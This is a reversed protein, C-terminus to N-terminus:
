ADVARQGGGRLRALEGEAEEIKSNLEATEAPTREVTADEIQRQLAELREAVASAEDAVNQRQEQPACAACCCCLVVLVIPIGGYILLYIGHEEWWRTSSCGILCM